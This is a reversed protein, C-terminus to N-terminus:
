QDQRKHCGARAANHAVQRDARERRCCDAVPTVECCREQGSQNDKEPKGCDAALWTVRGQAIAGAQCDESNDARLRREAITEVRHHGRQKTHQGPDAAAHQAVYKDRLDGGNQIGLKICNGREGASGYHHHAM